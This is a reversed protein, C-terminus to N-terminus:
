KGSYSNHESKDYINTGNFSNSKQSINPYLDLYSKSKNKENPKKIKEYNGLTFVKINNEEIIFIKTRKIKVKKVNNSVILQNVVKQNIVLDSSFLVWIQFSFIEFFNDSSIFFQDCFFFSM